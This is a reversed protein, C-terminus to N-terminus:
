PTWKAIWTTTLRLELWHTRWRTGFFFFGSLSIKEFLGFGVKLFILFEYFFRKHRWFRTSTSVSLGYSSGALIGHRLRLLRIAEQLHNKAIIQSFRCIEIWTGSKTMSKLKEIPPPAAHSRRILSFSPHSRKWFILKSRKKKVSQSSPNWLLFALRKITVCFIQMSALPKICLNQLQFRKPSSSSAWVDNDFLSGYLKVRRTLSYPQNM